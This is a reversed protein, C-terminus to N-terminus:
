PVTFEEENILHNGASDDVTQSVDITEIAGADSVSESGLWIQLDVSARPRFREGVVDHFESVTGVSLFGADAQNLAFRFDSRGCIVAFQAAKESADPGYAQFRLVLRGPLQVRQIVPIEVSGDVTASPISESVTVTTQGASYAVSVTTYVGNNGSSGIVRFKASVLFYTTYNGTFVFKKQAQDVGTIAADDQTEPMLEDHQGLPILSISQVTGYTVAPQPAAQHSNVVPMALAAEMFARVVGRITSASPM